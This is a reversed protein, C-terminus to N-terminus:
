ACAPPETDRPWAEVTRGGDAVLYARTVDDGPAFWLEWGGNAYGTARADAPLDADPLFRGRQDGSPLVGEPDRVYSRVERRSSGTDGLPWGVELLHAAQWGCHVPGAASAVVEPGVAEGAVSWPGSPEREAEATCGCLLLLVAVATAPRTTPM